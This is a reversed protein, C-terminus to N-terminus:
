FQAKADAGSVGTRTLALKEDATCGIELGPVEYHCWDLLGLMM